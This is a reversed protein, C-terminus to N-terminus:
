SSASAGTCGCRTGWGSTWPRRATTSRTRSRACSRRSSPSCRSTSATSSTSAAGPARSSAWGILCEFLTLVRVYVFVCVCMCVCVYVVCVCVYVCVFVCVCVCKDGAVGHAWAGRRVQCLGKFIDGMTQYNMQPSCNFVYCPLALARALDKTTETKGTGAPGAPAGGLMLRLAMTLTIYCRDTLPTIVLRGSNGVWEYFYKSRYDTIKIDVEKTDSVWYFRLQQAWMFSSPGEARSDILRQITDRGHVDMTILSIVKTRLSRDMKGLVMQILSNLRENCVALYKKVADDVGDM